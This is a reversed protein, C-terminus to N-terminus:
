RWLSPMASPDFITVEVGGREVVEVGSPALKRGTLATILRAWAETSSGGMSVVNGRRVVAPAGNLAGGGIWRALVKTARDADVTLRYSESWQGGECGGPDMVAPTSLTVSTSVAARVVADAGAPVPGVVHGHEADMDFSRPGVIVLADANAASEFSSTSDDAVIRTAPFLVLDYASLDRGPPVVDVDFGCRRAGSYADLVVSRHHDPQSGVAADDFRYVLACRASPVVLQNPDAAGVERLYQEVGRWGVTPQGAHDLLAVLDQDVGHTAGRWRAALLTEIGHHHAAWLVRSVHDTTPAEAVSVSQRAGLEQHLVWTPRGELLGRGLDHTFGNRVFLQGGPLNNDIGVITGVGAIVDADLDDHRLDHHTILDRGPSLVRIIEAQEDLFRRRQHAVFRRHALVLGGNVGRGTRPLHVADFSPYTESREVTGWASNLAAIDGDFRRELWRSFASACEGCWCAMQEFSAAAEDLKWGIVAEHEGYRDAMVGVIRRSEARTATATVCLPQVSTRPQWFRSFAVADRHEAVLWRPPNATPTGLVVHLGADDALAIAEDLWEWRFLDREPEFSSWAAGALLVVQLGLDRMRMTDDAWLRRDDAEPYWCVGLRM